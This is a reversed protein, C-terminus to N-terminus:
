RRAAQFDDAVAKLLLRIHHTKETDAIQGGGLETVYYVFTALGQQTDIKAFHIDCNLDGLARCLAYLVGVRDGCVVDVVTHKESLKNDIHVECEVSRTITRVRPIRRRAAEIMARFNGGGNLTTTLQEAVKNWFNPDTEAGVSSIEGALSVRFHDLIIKDRRTYAIASVVNVGAGLFAGAIQSFRQPRDTSVVWVDVLKGSGRVAAAAERRQERMTQILDLHLRADTANMEVLYRPPVYACHERIRMKEQDNQAGALLEAEIGAAEARQAEGSRVHPIAGSRAPDLLTDLRRYLEGLLEDKWHTFSGQGVASSDACTLLYLLDLREVSGIKKALEELLGGEGTDRRSSTRSLLLHHEVLFILLRTDHAALGLRECLAPVMLAGRASHGPGGRCKGLDHFLCALRLVAPKKLREFVLRRLRDAPAVSDVYRDAFEVVFLTHEDVSFDHFVDQIVLSEIAAFEPIYAGLFGTDRMARLAEAVHTRRALLEMFIKAAGLDKRVADNVRPLQTRIGASVEQSLRVSLKSAYLFARLATEVWREGTFIETHAAYLFDGVRVFDADLPRRRLKEIDRTVISREERYRRIVADALRHVATAARFYERLLVESGRLDETGEIGLEDALTQQMAYDFVDQKRGCVGHLAARLTLIREYGHTAEAISEQSVLPRKALRPLHGSLHSARDIWIALQYDRLAGRSDKLNPQTHYVSAGQRGHRAIAEEFKAEVFGKGRQKFFVELDHKLFRNALVADGAVYRAELLATATESASTANAEDGMCALCEDPTRVAHGLHLGADWLPRLLAGVLLELRQRGAEARESTAGAHLILLDLDSFPALERRGYSGLALVAIGPTGQPAGARTGAFDLLLRLTKDAMDTLYEGSDRGGRARNVDRAHQRGKAWVEKLRGLVSLGPASNPAVSAMAARLAEFVEDVM